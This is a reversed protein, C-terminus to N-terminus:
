VGEKGEALLTSIGGVYTSVIPVGLIQAECLSNPSNEIYATHVYMTANCLLDILQNADVPGFLTIGAEAFTSGETREVLMRYENPMAGVVNWEFEVGLRRLMCATKLMM